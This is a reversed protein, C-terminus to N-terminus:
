FDPRPRLHLPASSPARHTPDLNHLHIRTRGWRLNIAPARWRRTTLRLPHQQLPLLVRRWASWCNAATAMPALFYMISKGSTMTTLPRPMMVAM